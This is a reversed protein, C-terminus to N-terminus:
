TWISEGMEWGKVLVVHCGIEGVGGGSAKGALMGSNLREMFKHTKIDKSLVLPTTGFPLAAGLTIPVKSTTFSLFQIFANLITKRIKWPNWGGIFKVVEIMEHSQNDLFIESSLIEPEEVMGYGIKGKIVPIPRVRLLIGEGVSSRIYICVGNAIAFTL